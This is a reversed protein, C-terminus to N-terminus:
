AQITAPSTSAPYWIKVAPGPLGCSSPRASPRAGSTALNRHRQLAGAPRARRSHRARARDRGAQPRYFLVHRGVPFSFLDPRLDQRSRGMGPTQALKRAKARLREVVRRAAQPNDKAIYARIERLDARASETITLRAM